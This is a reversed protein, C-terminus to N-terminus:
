AAVENIQVTRGSPDVVNVWYGWASEKPTSKPKVGLKLLEALTSDLSAVNFGLMITHTNSEQSSNAKSPYLELVLGGFDCSYHVPSSGHKEQVLTIGLAHYFALLAEIDTARIVILSLATSQMNKM